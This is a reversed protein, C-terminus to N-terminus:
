GVGRHVFVAHLKSNLLSSVHVRRLQPLLCAAASSRVNLVRGLFHLTSTRYSANFVEGLVYVRHLQPLFCAVM